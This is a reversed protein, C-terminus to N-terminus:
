GPVAPVEVVLDGTGKSFTVNLYVTREKKSSLPVYESKDMRIVHGLEVHLKDINVEELEITMTLAMDSFLHIDVIDGFKSVVTKIANISSLREHNSYGTWFINEM